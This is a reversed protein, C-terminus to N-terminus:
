GIAVAWFLLTNKTAKWLTMKKSPAGCGGPGVLGAGLFLLPGPEPINVAQSQPLHSHFTDHYGGRIVGIGGQNAQSFVQFDPFYHGEILAIIMNEAERGAARKM